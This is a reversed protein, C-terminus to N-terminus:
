DMPEMLYSEKQKVIAGAPIVGRVSLCPYVM